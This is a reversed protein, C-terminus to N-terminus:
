VRMRWRIRSDEMKRGAAVAVLFRENLDNVERQVDSILQDSVKGDAGLGKYAGTSVVTLKIGIADQMKTDDQLVCYTGISGVMAIENAWVAEAQSGFASAVVSAIADRDASREPRVEFDAAEPVGTM